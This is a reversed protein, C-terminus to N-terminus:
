RKAAMLVHCLRERAQWITDADLNERAKKDLSLWMQHVAAGQSAFQSRRMLEHAYSWLNLSEAVEPEAALAEIQARTLDIDHEVALEELVILQLNHASQRDKEQARKKAAPGKTPKPAGPM